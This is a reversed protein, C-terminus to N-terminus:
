TLPKISIVHPMIIFRTRGRLWLWFGHGHLHVIVLPSGIVVLPVRLFGHSCSSSQPSALGEASFAEAVFSQGISSALLSSAAAFTASALSQPQCSSSSHVPSHSSSPQSSVSGVQGFAATLSTVFSYGLAASLALSVTKQCLYTTGFSGIPLIISNGIARVRLKKCSVRLSSYRQGWLLRGLELIGLRCRSGVRCGLGFGLGDFVERCGHLVM